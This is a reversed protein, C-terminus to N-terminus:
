WQVQAHSFKQSKGAVPFDEKDNLTGILPPTLGRFSIKKIQFVCTLLVVALAIGQGAV